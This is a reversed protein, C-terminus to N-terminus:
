VQAMTFQAIAQHAVLLPPIIDRKHFRFQGQQLIQTVGDVTPIEEATGHVPVPQGDLVIRRVIGAIRVSRGVHGASVIFVGIAHPQVNVAVFIRHVLVRGEHCFPHPGHADPHVAVSIMYGNIVTHAHQCVTHVTVSDQHSKALIM